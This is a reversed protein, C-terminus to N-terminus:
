VGHLRKRLTTKIQRLFVEPFDPQVDTQKRRKICLWIIMPFDTNSRDSEVEAIAPQYGEPLWGKCVPANSKDYFTTNAEMKKEGIM